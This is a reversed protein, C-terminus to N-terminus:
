QEIKEGQYNVGSLTQQSNVAAAAIRTASDAGAIAAEVILKDRSLKDDSLIKSTGLDTEAQKAKRQWDIEAVAISARIYVGIMEWLSKQAEIATTADDMALKPIALAAQFFGALVQAIGLRLQNAQAVAFKSLDISIEAQKIAVERSLTASKTTTSEQVAQMRAALAGPPLQFGRGAYGDIAEQELRVGEQVERARARDWIQQELAVPIGLRGDRLVGILWDDTLTPILSNLSPAYQAMWGAMRDQLWDELATWTQDRRTTYLADFDQDTDLAPVEPLDLEPILISLAALRQSEATAKADNLYGDAQNIKQTALDAADLIVGRATDYVEQVTTM